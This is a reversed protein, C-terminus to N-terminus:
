SPKLISCRPSYRLGQSITVSMELRPFRVRACIRQIVVSSAPPINRSAGSIPKAQYAGIVDVIANGLLLRFYRPLECM